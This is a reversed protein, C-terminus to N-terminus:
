AREAAIDCGLEPMMRLPRVHQFPSSAISAVRRFKARIQGFDSFCFLYVPMFLCCRASVYGGYRQRMWDSNSFSPGHGHGGDNFLFKIAVQARALAMAAERLDREALATGIMRHDHEEQDHRNGEHRHRTTGGVPAAKADNPTAAALEICATPGPEVSNSASGFTPRGSISIAQWPCAHPASLASHRAAM